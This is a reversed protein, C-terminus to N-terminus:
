ASTATSPSSASDWSPLRAACSTWRRGSMASSGASEKTQPDRQLTDETWMDIASSVISDEIMREILADNNLYNSDISRIGQIFSYFNIGNSTAYEKLYDSLSEKSPSQTIEKKKFIAM